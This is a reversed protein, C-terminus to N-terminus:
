RGASLETATRASQGRSFPRSSGGAPPTPVALDGKYLESPCAPSRHQQVPGADIDKQYLQLM